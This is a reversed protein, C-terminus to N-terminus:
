QFSKSVYIGLSSADVDESDIKYDMITYRVGLQWDPQRIIYGYKFVIGLADDFELKVKNSDSIEEEYRPDLHYSLGFGLRHLDYHQTYITELTTASTEEEFSSEWLYGLALSLTESKNDGIFSRFGVALHLGGGIRYGRPCDREQFYLDVCNVEKSSLKDSGARADGEIFIEANSAVPFCVLLFALVFKKM